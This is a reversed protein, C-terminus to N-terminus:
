WYFSVPKNSLNIFKGTLGKFKPTVKTQAPAPQNNGYFTTVNPEVYVLTKQRGNGVDYEFEHLNPDNLFRSQDKEDDGYLIWEEKGHLQESLSCTNAPQQDALATSPLLFAANSVLLLMTPVSVMPLSTTAAVNMRLLAAVVLTTSSFASARKM